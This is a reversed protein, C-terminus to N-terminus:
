NPPNFDIPILLRFTTFPSGPILELTGGHEQAIARSLSLGVGMGLGRTKTTFFPDMLHKRTEEDIGLGSDIVDVCVSERQRAADIKVWRVPCHREVIADFSNNLLNNVIQGIQTERCLIHPIDHDVHCELAVSHRDFRAEQLHMAETIIRDISAYEMPDNAAQRAFGRLGRLIRSARDATLVILQAAKMIEAPELNDPNFSSLDSATAHIIALPNSIEHALGGAMHSLAEIRKERLNRELDLEAQLRQREALVRESALLASRAEDREQQSRTLLHVVEPLKRALSPAALTFLIATFLSAIACIVKVAASLPYVPLWITVIDMAHTAGCAVIFAAFSLFIWLYPRLKPITRLRTTMFLLAGFIALYSLAIIADATTNTWILSPSALYCFRHPLYRQSFLAQVPGSRWLAALILGFSIILIRLKL